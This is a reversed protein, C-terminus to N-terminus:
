GGEGENKVGEKYHNMEGGHTYIRKTTSRNLVGINTGM